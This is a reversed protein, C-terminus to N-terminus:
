DSRSRRRAILVMMAVAALLMTYTQPDDAAIATQAVIVPVFNGFVPTAATWNGGLALLVAIVTFLVLRKM